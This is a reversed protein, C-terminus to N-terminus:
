ANGEKDATGNAEGAVRSSLRPDPYLFLLV